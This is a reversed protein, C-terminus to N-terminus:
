AKKKVAKKKIPKFCLAIISITLEYSIAITQPLGRDDIFPDRLYFYGKKTNSLVSSM